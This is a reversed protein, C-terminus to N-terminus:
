ALEPPAPLAAVTPYAKTNEIIDHHPNVPLITGTFGGHLLNKMVVHGVAHPKASAGIVAVSRPHFLHTLNLVSM